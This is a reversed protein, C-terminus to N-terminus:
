VSEDIKHLSVGEKRAQYRTLKRRLAYEELAVWITLFLFSGCLIFTFFRVEEPLLDPWIGELWIVVGVFALLHVLMSRAASMREYAFQAELVRRLQSREPDLQKNIRFEIIEEPSKM